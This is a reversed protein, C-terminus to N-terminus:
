ELMFHMQPTKEPFISRIPENEQSTHYGLLAQALPRINLKFSSSGQTNKKISEGESIVFASNNASLLEDHVSVSFSKQKYRNAFLSLLKEADIVRAMGILSKKSPFGFLAAEEVIARFDDFSKQVTMDKQRFWTNFERWAAHLDGPHDEILKKLPPLEETGADFTQAFGYKDYFKLLWSEQPVLLMLPVNNKQAHEFSALLLKDMYGKKRAQPLTCVGSHYLVPIETGCFTFQYPLMQLSAVAKEGEFYILTNENRYKERFYIEMYDDSDGFVTKWMDYVQQKTTDGAYKIM